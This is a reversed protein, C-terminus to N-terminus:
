ESRGLINSISSKGRQKAQGQEAGLSLAFLMEWFTAADCLYKHIGFYQNTVNFDLKAFSPCLTTGQEGHGSVVATPTSSWGPRWASLRWGLMDVVILLSIDESQSFSMRTNALGATAQGLGQAPADAAPPAPSAGLWSYGARHETNRWVLVSEDTSGRAGEGLQLTWISVARGRGEGTGEFGGSSDPFPQPCGWM